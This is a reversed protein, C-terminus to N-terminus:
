VGGAELRAHKPVLSLAGVQAGAGIEVGIGVVSELGITVGPGLRVRATRVVGGEVTHGSLHASEGIVVGDGLELLNHDNVSLSNVWVGRGIRAGNMRLYLTWFPTARFVTGAFIRVLHTSVLYRGWRLLPWGMEAIPMRADAPTRWGLLRTSWASLAMLTGAFLCYAPVFSMSLVVIRVWLVPLRWEFHLEWFLAAPLVSLGFVVSEVVFVSLVGWGFRLLRGLRGRGPRSLLRPLDM